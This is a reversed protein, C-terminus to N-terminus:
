GRPISHSDLCTSSAPPFIFLSTLDALGTYDPLLCSAFVSVQLIADTKRRTYWSCLTTLSLSVNKQLPGSPDSLEMWQRNHCLCLSLPCGIDTGDHVVVLACSKLHLVQPDSTGQVQQLSISGLTTIVSSYFISSHDLSVTIVKPIMLPYQKNLLSPLNWTPM